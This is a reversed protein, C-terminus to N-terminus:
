RQIKSRVEYLDPRRLKWNRASNLGILPTETESRSYFSPRCIGKIEKRGKGMNRKRFLCRFTNAAVQEVEIAERTNILVNPVEEIAM